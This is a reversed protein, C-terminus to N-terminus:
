RDVVVFMLKCANDSWSLWWCLKPALEFCDKDLSYRGKEMVIDNSDGQNDQTRKSSADTSKLDRKVSRARTTSSRFNKACIANSKSNVSGRSSSSTKKSSEKQEKTSQARKRAM